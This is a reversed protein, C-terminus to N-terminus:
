EGDPKCDANFLEEGIWQLISIVRSETYNHNLNALKLEIIGQEFMNYSSSVCIIGRGRYEVASVFDNWKDIGNTIDKYRVATYRIEVSVPSNEGAPTFRFNNHRENWDRIFETLSFAEPM